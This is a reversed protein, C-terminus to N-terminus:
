KKKYEGLETTTVNGQADQVVRIIKNGKPGEWTWSGDGGVAPHSYRPPSSQPVGDPAPNPASPNTIVGPDASNPPYATRIEGSALVTTKVEVGDVRGVYDYAWAPNGDADKTLYPGRAPPGQQTVQHAADLIRPEDWDKPFETKKSYGTGALHGGQRGGDGSVIHERSADSHHIDDARPPTTPQPPPTPRTPRNPQRQRGPTTAPLGSGPPRGAQASAQVAQHTQSISGGSNGGGPRRPRGGGNGGDGGDGGSGGGDNGGNTGGGNGGPNRPRAM